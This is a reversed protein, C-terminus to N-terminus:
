HAANPHFPAIMGSEVGRQGRVQKKGRQESSGNEM